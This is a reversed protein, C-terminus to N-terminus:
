SELSRYEEEQNMALKKGIILLKISISFRSILGSVVLLLTLLKTENAWTMRRTASVFLTSLSRTEAGAFCLSYNDLILFTFATELMRGM